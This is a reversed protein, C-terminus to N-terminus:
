NLHLREYEAPNLYDLGSHRRIRNYFIEIYEFLSARAQERTLFTQRYVLEKKLTAFFSEVPANDWCNGKRSMSARIAAHALQEQFARGAYQSGRDSHFLLDGAWAQDLGEIQEIRFQRDLQNPVVPLAHKSDTTRVYKRPKKAALNLVRMLRAVRKQSCVVGETQLERYIRPSGYLGRSATFHFRIREQLEEDRLRRPSKDRKLWAYFGSARVKM